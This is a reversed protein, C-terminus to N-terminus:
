YFYIENVFGSIIKLASKTAVSMWVQRKSLVNRHGCKGEPLMQEKM